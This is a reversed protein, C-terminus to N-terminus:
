QKKTIKNFKRGKPWYYLGTAIENNKINHFEFVVFFLMVFM